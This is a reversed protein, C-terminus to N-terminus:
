RSCIKRLLLSVLFVVLCILAFICIGIPIGWTVFGYFDNKGTVINGRGNVLINGLYGAAYVLVPVITYLSERVSFSERVFVMCEGIAALPIILHLWLNAGSFMGAYGFLPGLFVVVTLFTLFVSMCAIFKLVEARHNKRRGFLTASLWILSAFGELLNSLVTFYKLSALGRSSLVGGYVGRFMSSWALFPMFATFLNIIVRCKKQMEPSRNLETPSNGSPNKFLYCCLENAYM